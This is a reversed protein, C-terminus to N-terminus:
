GIRPKELVRVTRQASARIYEPCEDMSDQDAYYRADALLVQLGPDDARLLVCRGRRGQEVALEEGPNLPSRDVHDEWFIRPVAVVEMAARNTNAISM